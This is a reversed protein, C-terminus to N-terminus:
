YGVFLIDSIARHDSFLGFSASENIIKGNFWLATSSNSLNYASVAKLRVFLKGLTDLRMGKSNSSKGEVVIVIYHLPEIMGIATRPSKSIAWRSDSTLAKGDEVLVPGMSFSHVVGRNVLSEGDVVGETAFLFDGKDDILLARNDPAKRPIDRYLIGNRIVLGDDRVGYFDGSFALIAHNNEAIKSTPEVVNKGYIDKAFAAKLYQVDSFLIDVVHYIVDEDNITSISITINEDKYAFDSIVASSVSPSKDSISEVVAYTKPILLADALVFTTLLICVSATFWTLKANKSLKLKM